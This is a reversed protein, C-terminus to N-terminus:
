IIEIVNFLFTTDSDNMLFEYFMHWNYNQVNFQLNRDYTHVTINQINNDKSECIQLFKIESLNYFNTTIEKHKVIIFKM